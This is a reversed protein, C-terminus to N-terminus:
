ARIIKQNAEHSRQNIDSINEVCSKHSNSIEELLKTIQKQTEYKETDQAELQRIISENDLRYKESIGKGLSGLATTVILGSQIVQGSLGIAQNIINAGGLAFTSLSAILSAMSTWFNLHWEIQDKIEKNGRSLYTSVKEMLDFESAVQLSLTVGGTVIMAIGVGAGVGSAVATAGAAISLISGLTNAVKVVMSWGNSNMVKKARENVAEQLQRSLEQKQERTETLRISYHMMREACLRMSEINVNMLDEEVTTEAFKPPALDANPPSNDSSRPFSPALNSPVIAVM